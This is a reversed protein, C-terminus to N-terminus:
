IGNLMRTDAAKVGAAKWGGTLLAGFGADQERHNLTGGMRSQLSISWSWHLPFHNVRQRGAQGLGEGADTEMELSRLGAKQLSKFFTRHKLM